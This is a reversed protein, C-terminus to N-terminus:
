VLKNLDIFENDSDSDLHGVKDDDSNLIKFEDNEDNYYQLVKNDYDIIYTGGKQNKKKSSKKTIKKTSKQRSQKTKTESKPGSKKQPKESEIESETEAFEDYEDPNLTSKHELFDYKKFYKFLKNYNNSDLFTQNWFVSAEIQKDLFENYEIGNKNDLNDFGIINNIGIYQKVMLEININKYIEINHEPIHYETFVDIINFNENKNFTVIIEELKKIVSSTAKSKDFDKCVIYKESNSIRSTYPKCIYVDKYFIRLLEIFKLTTHTYSEFIKLVFNGHNKQVKLATVIESFILKYAEQEQLNEKKWDFGGDATVLDSPKAFSEVDKAGGFLHITNIKTLDGNTFLEKRGGGYMDKIEKISKTELIHLRKTKDKDFYKIFDQQMKLHEQDSHLTVGYYHDKASTKIKGLKEQLERFYITAQIFSGPGECLHSSTFNEDDSILDFDIIMEWIKLFARNLLPPLKPNIEKIFKDIGNGISQYKIGNDTEDKYDINKEFLSTVLYIKKRNAYKETLEMKDKVKHIFHQFGLTLQPYSVNNSFKVDNNFDTIKSQKLNSLDFILPNYKKFKETFIDLTSM